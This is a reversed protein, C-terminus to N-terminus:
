FTFWLTTTGKVKTKDLYPMVSCYHSLICFTIWFFPFNIISQKFAIRPNGNKGTISINADGLLLGVFVGILYSPLCRLHKEYFLCKTSNKKPLGLTSGLTGAKDWVVIDTCNTPPFISNNIKNWKKIIPYTPIFAALEIFFDETM